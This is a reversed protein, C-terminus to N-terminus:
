VDKAMVTHRKNAKARESADTIIKVVKQELADYFDKSVSLDGVIEKIRSHVIVM